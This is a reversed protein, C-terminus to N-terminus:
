PLSVSFRPQFTLKNDITMIKKNNSVTNHSQTYSAESFEIKLNLAAMCFSLGLVSDLRM